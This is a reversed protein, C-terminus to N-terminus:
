KENTHRREDNFGFAHLTGDQMGVYVQGLGSWMSGPSAPTTMAKGSNWLPKGTAGEYAYLVAATGRGTGTSPVGSALAFVVGNVILPTAPSALDHSVWNSELSVAGGADTLKLAVV